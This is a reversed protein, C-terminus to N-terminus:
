TRYQRWHSAMEDTRQHEGGVGWVGCNEERRGSMVEVSACWESGSCIADLGHNGHPEIAIRVKLDGPRAPRFDL